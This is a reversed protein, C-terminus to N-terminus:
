LLTRPMTFIPPTTFFESFDERGYFYDASGGGGWFGGGFVRFKISMPKGASLACKKWTDMFNACGNGAGSNRVRIKRVRPNKQFVGRRLLKVTKEITTTSKTRSPGKPLNCSPHKLGPLELGVMDQSFGKEKGCTCDAGGLIVSRNRLLPRRFPTAESKKGKKGNEETKKRKRGNKGNEKRKRGNEETKKRKNRKKGNKETKKRKKRKKGNKETKKKGNKETQKKETKATKEPESKKRKKRKKGNEETKETKKRKKRNKETKKRKRGNEETKKRKMKLFFFPSVGNALGRKRFASWNLSAM